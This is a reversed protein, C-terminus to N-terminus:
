TKCSPNIDGESIGTGPKLGEVFEIGRNPFAPKFLFEVRYAPLVTRLIYNCNAVPFSECCYFLLIGYYLLKGRIKCIVIVIIIASIILVVIAMVVGVVIIYTPGIYM